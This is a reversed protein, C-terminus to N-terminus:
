CASALLRFNRLRRLALRSISWAALFRAPFWLGMFYLLGFFESNLGFFEFYPLYHPFQQLFLMALFFSAVVLVYLAYPLLGFFVFLLVSATLRNRFILAAAIGTNRLASFEYRMALILLLVFLGHSGLFLVNHTLPDYMESVDNSSYYFSYYTLCRQLTRVAIYLFHAQILVLTLSKQSQRLASLLGTSISQHPLPTTLILELMGSRRDGHLQQTSEACFHWRTLLETIAVAVGFSFILIGSASMDNGGLLMLLGCFLALLIMAWTTSRILLVNWFAKRSRHHALQQYPDAGDELRLLAAGPSPRARRRLGTGHGVPETERKWQIWFFLMSLSLLILSLALLSSLHLLYLPLSGTLLMHSPLTAPGSLAYLVDTATSPFAGPANLMLNGILPLPPLVFCALITAFALTSTVRVQRTVASAALGCSLGLLIVALLNLFQRLVDTAAIGGSLVPLSLIPLVALLHLLYPTGHSFLKGLLIGLPKLPTLMLMGLTNRRRESSLSDSISLCAGFGFLFVAVHSTGLLIAQPSIRGPLQPSIAMWLIWMLAASGTLVCRVLYGSKKRSIVRLERSLVSGVNLM